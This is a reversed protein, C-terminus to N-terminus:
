EDELVEPEYGGQDTAEQACAACLYLTMADLYHTARRGCRPPVRGVPAAYAGAECDHPEAALADDRVWDNGADRLYEEHDDM